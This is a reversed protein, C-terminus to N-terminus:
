LPASRDGRGRCLDGHRWARPTRYCGHDSRRAPRETGATIQDDSAPFVQPLRGSPEQIGLLVDALANGCEQGPYWQQLVAGVNHAWPMALPAGAQLVVVTRPNVAAIAAIMADQGPPLSLSRRDESETEWEPSLGTVIVVADAAAAIRCAADLDGKQSVARLGFRM